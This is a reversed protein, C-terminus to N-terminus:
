IEYRFDAILVNNSIKIPRMQAWNFNPPLEFLLSIDRRKSNNIILNVLNVLGNVSQLGTTFEYVILKFRM